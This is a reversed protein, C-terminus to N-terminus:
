RKGQAEREDGSSKESDDGHNGSAGREQQPTQGRGGHTGKHTGNHTDDHATSEPTLATTSPATSSANTSTNTSTIGSTNQAASGAPSEPVHLPPSNHPQHLPRHVPGSSVKVRVPRILWGHLMYGEQLIQTIMGEPKDSAEVMLVEDTYPNVERNEAEIKKVGLSSLADKLQRYLLDFATDGTKDKEEVAEKNETKNGNRNSGERNKGDKNGESDGLHIHEGKCREGEKGQRAPAMHKLAQEFSDVLPLFREVAVAQAQKVRKSCDTESRKRFNEFEAQIRQVLTTLEAIEADKQALATRHYPAPSETETGETRSQKELKRSQSELEKSHREGASGKDNGKDPSASGSMEEKTM